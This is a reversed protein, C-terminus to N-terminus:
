RALKKPRNPTEFKLEGYDIRQRCYGRFVIQGGPTDADQTYHVARDVVEGRARVATLNLLRKAM